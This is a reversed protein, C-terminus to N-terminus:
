APQTAPEPIGFMEHPTTFANDGCDFAGTRLDVAVRFHEGVTHYEATLLERMDRGFDIDDTFTGDDFLVLGEEYVFVGDEWDWTAFVVGVATPPDTVDDETDEEAAADAAEEALVERILALMAQQREHSYVQHVAVLLARRQAADLAALSTVLTNDSTTDLVLRNTTWAAGAPLQPATHSPATDLQQNTFLECDRTQVKAIWYLVPVPGGDCVAVTFGNAKVADLDVRDAMHLAATGSARLMCPRCGETMAAHPCRTSDALGVLKDVLGDVALDAAAEYCSVDDPDAPDRGQANHGLHYHHAPTDTM